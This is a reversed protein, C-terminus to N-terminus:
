IYLMFIIDKTFRLYTVTIHTNLISVNIHILKLHEQKYIKEQKIAQHVGVHMFDSPGGVGHIQLKCWSECPPLSLHCNLGFENLESTRM